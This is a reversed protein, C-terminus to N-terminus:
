MFLFCFVWFIVLYCAYCKSSLHLFFFFTVYFGFHLTFHFTFFFLSSVKIIDKDTDKSTNSLHQNVIQKLAEELNAGVKFIGSGVVGEYSSGEEWFSAVNADTDSDCCFWM